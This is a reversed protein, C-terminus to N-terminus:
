NVHSKEKQQKFNLLSCIILSQDTFDAFHGELMVLLVSGNSSLCWPTLSTLCHGLVSNFNGLPVDNCVSLKM